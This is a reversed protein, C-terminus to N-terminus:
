TLFVDTNVCSVRQGLVHLPISNSLWKVPMIEDANFITATVDYYALRLSQPIPFEVKLRVPGKEVPCGGIVYDCLPVRIFPLRRTNKRIDLITYSGLEIPKELTGDILVSVTSGRTTLTHPLVSVNTAALTDTTNGCLRIGVPINSMVFGPLERVNWRQLM